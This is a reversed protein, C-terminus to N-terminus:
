INENVPRDANIMPNGDTDIKLEEHRLEEEVSVTEESVEKRITVEERVFAEKHIDPTEEYVEMTIAEDHGFAVNSAIVETSNGPARDIVIRERDIPVSVQATETEVRKGIAVEGTKERDIDVVLREEYLKISNPDPEHLSGASLNSRIDPTVPPMPMAEPRSETGMLSTDTALNAQGGPIDYIAWNKIGGRNLIAEARRVEDQSGDVIVLYDGQAVRDNYFKARDEPIGLGVLGGLLGGTAAGIATGAATTALATAVEGALMIPGVGPIALTGLGVLLGTLGGLTGGSLAGVGAGEDAKNGVKKTVEAGAIGDKQGADKAIVSVKDMSFGSKKLDHLAQTAQARNPFAGVARKNHRKNHNAPTTANYRDSNM